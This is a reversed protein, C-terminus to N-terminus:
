GGPQAGLTVTVTAAGNPRALKVEVKQGPALTALLNTLDDATPTPTGAVSVIV